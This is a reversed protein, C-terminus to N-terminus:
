LPKVPMYIDVVAKHEPHQKPDNLYMEFPPRDDPQYGSEPLWTGYLANWAAEYEDGALEFHGVAYKGGDLTMKGVEGGVETEEPVTICVSTRLRSEDTVDPNDHYVCLVKTKPFRLLDRAGAWRFLTSMLREFLAEDGKYPGIHRVYAVHMVPVDIVDVKPKVEKAMEIRRWKQSKTDGTYPSSTEEDKEGNSNTKGINRETEGMKRKERWGTASTGFCERFARAFASSSSFGYDMAIETVTLRPNEILRNAAKELRIRQIFRNLPEGVIGKFIRHFHFPSFSAVKSLRELSLEDEIHEEIYDIVRNIRSVYEERLGASRGFESM